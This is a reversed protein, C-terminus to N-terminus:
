HQNDGGAAYRSFSFQSLECGFDSHMLREGPQTSLIIHLSQLIDAEASIMEAQRTQRNFTPPFAWGTGLFSNDKPPSLNNSM